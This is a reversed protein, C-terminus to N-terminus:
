GYIRYPSILLAGDVGVADMAEVMQEGTVEPPGTLEGVWPNEPTNAEYAHVQCDIIPTSNNPM